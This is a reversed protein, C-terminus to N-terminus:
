DSFFSSKGDLMNTKELPLRAANMFRGMMSVASLFLLFESGVEISYRHYFQHFTDDSLAAHRTLEDAVKCLFNAEQSLSRVPNENRIALIERDTVGLGKCLSEYQLTLYNAPIQLASRFLAIQRLKPDFKSNYMAKAFSIYPHFIAPMNALLRFINLPPLNALCERLSANLQADQPLPVSDFM